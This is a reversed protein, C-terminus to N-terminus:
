EGFRKVRDSRNLILKGGCRPRKMVDITDDDLEGSIKLGM